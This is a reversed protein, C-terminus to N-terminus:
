SRGGPPVSPDTIAHRTLVQDLGIGAAELRTLLQGLDRLDVSAVAIATHRPVLRVELDGVMDRLEAGLCGRVRLEIRLDRSM